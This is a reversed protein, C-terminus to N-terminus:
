DFIWDADGGIKNVRIHPTCKKHAHCLTSTYSDYYARSLSAFFQVDIEGKAIKEGCIRCRARGTAIHEEVCPSETIVNEDVLPFTKVETM